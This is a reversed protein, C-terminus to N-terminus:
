TEFRPFLINNEIHMHETLDEVLKGLGAYLARWSSCAGDPLNLDGTLAALAKLAEGHEDHEHRMMAIPHVIMPNGGARMLPFLVQEEKQMHSELEAQMRALLDSLGTPVAPHGAHVQEVRKALARLEPLERRHVQHYRELILDIIDDTNEPIPNEEPSLRALEAEISAPDLGNKRAAQELSESGGCCFDLKYRRFVATSGPLSAAIEGLSRHALSQFAAQNM